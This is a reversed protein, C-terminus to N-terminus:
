SVESQCICTYFIIANQSIQIWIRWFIDACIYKYKYKPQFVTHNVCRMISKSNDIYIYIYIYVNVIWLGNHPTHSVFNKLGFVLVFINTNVNKPSYSYLYLQIGNKPRICICIVTPKGTRPALPEGVPSDMTSSYADTLLNLTEPISFFFFGANCFNLYSWSIWSIHNPDHKIAQFDHLLTNHVLKWFLLIHSTWNLERWLKNKYNSNCYPSVGFAISSFFRKPLLIPEFPSLNLECM